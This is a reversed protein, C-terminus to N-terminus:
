RQHAGGQSRGESLEAVTRKAHPAEVVYAKTVAEWPSRGREAGLQDRLRTFEKERALFATRAALWEEHSVVQHNTIGSAGDHPMTRSGRGPETIPQVIRAESPVQRVRGPPGLLHGAREAVQVGAG